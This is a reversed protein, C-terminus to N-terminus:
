LLDCCMLLLPSKDSLFEHNSTDIQKCMNFGNRHYFRIADPNSSFVFVELSPFKYHKAQQKVQELLQTGIGRGRHKRRICIADLHWSNNLKNDVFYQIYQFQQASYHQKAQENLLLGSAPFSLAMGVVDSEIQAVITNAFSYHVESALLESVKKGAADGHQSSHSFVYDAAGSSSENILRALVPCDSLRGNRISFDEM